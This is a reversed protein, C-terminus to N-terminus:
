LHPLQLPALGQAQGFTFDSGGPQPGLSQALLRQPLLASLFRVARSEFAWVEVLLYKSLLKPEFRPAETTLNADVSPGPFSSFYRCFPPVRPLARAISPCAPDASESVPRPRPFRAALPMLRPSFAPPTLPCHPPPPTPLIFCQREVAERFVFNGELVSKELHM